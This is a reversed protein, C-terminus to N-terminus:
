PEEGMIGQEAWERYLTMEGRWSRRERSAMKNRNDGSGSEINLVRIIPDRLVRPLHWSKPRPSALSLESSIEQWAAIAM